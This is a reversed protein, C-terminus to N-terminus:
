RGVHVGGEQPVSAAMVPSEKNVVVAGYTIAENLAARVANRKSEDAHPFSDMIEAIGRKGNIQAVAMSLSDTLPLSKGQQSDLIEAPRLCLGDIAYSSRRTWAPNVLLPYDAPVSEAGATAGSFLSEAMTKVEAPVDLNMLFRRYWSRHQYAGAILSAFAQLPKASPMDMGKRANWFYSDPSRHGGYLFYIQQKMREFEDAYQEQYFRLIANENADAGSRADLLTNVSVAALYGSLMALHVGTSLLPDIFCAADGVALYGPGFFSKYKYSWDMTIRLNDVKTASQLREALEPTRDIAASYYADLGMEKAAAYNERDLVIGVGTVDDRLPIFWWWGDAFAPLFTNGADVGESRRAGKWYNWLAMNRLRPDWVKESNQKTIFNAQGSADIVWACEVTASGTPSEYEVGVVRDQSWLLKKVACEEKATAGHARANDLLMEDFPAREVQYGFDYPNALADKFYVTWPARQTGWIWTVGFKKIYSAAEVKDVVGLKSLLDTTGSLLSEGIHYRPFRERELVLVSRGAKALLTAVTSGGPGGGVVVVDYSNSM